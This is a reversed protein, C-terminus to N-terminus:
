KSHREKKGVTEEWYLNEELGGEVTRTDGAGGERRLIMTSKMASQRGEMSGTLRGSKKRSLNVCTGSIETTIALSTTRWNTASRIEFSTTIETDMM